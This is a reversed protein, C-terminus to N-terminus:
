KSRFWKFPSGYRRRIEALIDDAKRGTGRLPVAMDWGTSVYYGLGNAKNIHVLGVGMNWKGKWANKKAILLGLAKAQTLTDAYGYYGGGGALQVVYNKTKSKTRIM